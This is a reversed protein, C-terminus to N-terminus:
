ELTARPPDANVLIAETDYSIDQTANDNKYNMKSIDEKERNTAVVKKYLM